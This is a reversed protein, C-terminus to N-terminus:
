RYLQLNKYRYLHLYSKRTESTSSLINYRYLQLYSKRIQLSSSLIKTDRLNFLNKYRHLQLYSKPKTDAFNCVYKKQYQGTKLDM